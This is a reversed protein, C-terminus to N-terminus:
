ISAPLAAHGAVSFVLAWVMCVTAFPVGHIKNMVTGKMVNMAMGVVM